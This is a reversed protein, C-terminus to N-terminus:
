LRFGARVGWTRPPDWQAHTFTVLGLLIQNRVDEDELNKVFAQAYYKEGPSNWTLYLDTKTFSDEAGYSENFQSLYQDDTYQFQIRPTLTGLEGLGFTHEIGVSFRLDPAKPLANGKINVSNAQLFAANCNNLVQDCADFNGIESDLYGLAFNLTTADGLIAVGELEVGFVEAPMVDVVNGPSGSPKVRVAGVQISDYDNFFMSANLRLRGDLFTNKTGIEYATVTEEDWGGLETDVGGSKYGTTVSAYVMSDESRYWTLGARWDVNDSETSIEPWVVLSPMGLFLSNQMLSKAQWDDTYRLGAFAEWKDSFRYKVDGYVAWSESDLPVDFVDFGFGYDPLPGIANVIVIQRTAFQEEEFYYAGLVWDLPSDAQVSSLRLEHSFHENKHVFPGFEGDALVGPGFPSANGSVVLLGDMDQLSNKNEDEHINGIYTLQTSSLDWQLEATVGWVEVDNEPQTDLSFVRPDSPDEVIQQPIPFGFGGTLGLWANQRADEPVLFPVFQPGVGGKEEYYAKVFLSLDDSADWLLGLRFAKDDADDANKINSNVNDNELYGDHEETVFSARLALTDEVLPLNIIGSLGFHSFDGAALEGAIEFDYHPRRTVINISGATSNRGSLTGQPGRSVEVRKVDHFTATGARSTSLYVGDSHFAVAAGAGENFAINTEVGRLNVVMTNARKGTAMNPVIASLDEINKMGLEEIVKDSVASVSIPVDQISEERKQATVLIEEILSSEAAFVVPLPTLVAVSVGLLMARSTHLVVM